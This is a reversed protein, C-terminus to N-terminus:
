KWILDISRFYNNLGAFDTRKFSYIIKVNRKERTEKKPILDFIRLEIPPHPKDINVIANKKM